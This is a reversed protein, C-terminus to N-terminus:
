KKIFNAVARVGGSRWECFYMGESYTKVDLEIDGGLMTKRYVVQGLVNCITLVGSKYDQNEIRFRINQDAPNPFVQMPMLQNVEHVPLSGDLRINTKYFSIGGRSNGTIMELISDQDIDALSVSTRFGDSVKGFHNTVKTFAGGNISDEIGTYQWINQRETGVLMLYHHDLDIFFPASEGTASGFQRTDIKGLYESTAVAPSTPSPNFDPNGVSGINKFYNINGNREGIVLDPLGDRDLDVIQPTSSQGVDINEYQYQPSDFQMPNGAGANNKLFFLSGNDEGIILDQDGDNDLDGFTPAYNWAANSFQSFNLYDDDELRYKPQTPTGINKYLFLRSDKASGGNIFFTFNGAVIDMLGDANYDVFAPHCGTGFDIMDEVLLDKQQFTFVPNENTGTNPYYWVVNYNEASNSTNPSGVLDKKGDNNLDIIFPAPFISIDVPTSGGPFNNVQSTILATENSGGNILLNFNNFSIDGLVVERDGDNDIDFTVETSGVHLPQKIESPLGATFPSACSDLTPSLNVPVQLGSEFFRGWCNDKLRFVLSDKGFGLQVSRNDYLEMNAGGSAFTLIDLDGDGDIDNVDPYDDFAIYIPSKTGNPLPFYILDNDNGYLHFREFHLENNQFFGKFVMVGPVGPVDSFAFIDMVGDGNFDRLLVWDTLDPFNRAYSPEYDYDTQGNAGHNIFTLKVNGVRDFIFLDPIGDNNLDAESFQPNTLGGVWPYRLSLGNITLEPHYAEFNQGFVSSSYLVLCLYFAFKKM